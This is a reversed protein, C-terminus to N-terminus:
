FNIKNNKITSLRHVPNICERWYLGREYLFLSLQETRDSEKSLLRTSLGEPQPGQKSQRGEKGGGKADPEGGGETRRM